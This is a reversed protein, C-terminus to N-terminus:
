LSGCSSWLVVILISPIPDFKQDERLYTDPTYLACVPLIFSVPQKTCVNSHLKQQSLIEHKIMPSVLTIIPITIIISSQHNIISSQHYGELLMRCANARKRERDILLMKSIAYMSVIWGDVQAEVQGCCCCCCCCLRVCM